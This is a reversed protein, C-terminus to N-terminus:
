YWSRYPRSYNGGRSNYGGNKTTSMDILKSPVDQNAEKLIKVLEKACASNESTFFSHSLGETVDGRATRGIRHVYDEINNPFDYNIVLAVNKIDLGRAAVDTAILINKYGSRFDSIIRDRINQSKDGHIAVAKYGRRSLDDELNDCMRKTNAFIIVKENKKENLSEHLKNAKEHSDIVSVIQKIKINTKLEVSGITLQVFNKMYNEALRRVEKPWTASWMLTQRDPNTNVIIKKLQPEFGMDLMRDAEDLVLFTVRNFHLAGQENLDILRGPCGVVVECGMSIDRKQTYSSVGGYVATCRMNFFRCYEDFVDKIQLCLERTPALVLVIPGDGSRLPIQARAHILAPLVFSLTKGSGTQAIGVMDKGTLAMPWGQAQIPTPSTFAKLKFNNLVENEFPAHEFKVYPHPVDGSIKIDHQNRFNDAERDTLNDTKKYFDKKFEVAGLAPKLEFAPRSESRGPTWSVSKNSTWGSSRNSLPRSNGGYWSDGRSFTNNKYARNGKQLKDDNDDRWSKKQSRYSGNYNDNNGYSM